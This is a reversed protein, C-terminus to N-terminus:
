KPRQWYTFNPQLDICHLKPLYATVCVIRRLGMIYLLCSTMWLVPLVYRIVICATEPLGLRLWNTYFNNSNPRTTESINSCLSLCVSMSMVNSFLVHATMNVHLGVGPRFHVIDTDVKTNIAWARKRKSCPSVFLCMGLSLSVSAVLRGIWPV